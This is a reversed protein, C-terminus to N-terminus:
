RRDHHDDHDHRWNWYEEQERRNARQYEHYQKHSNSLYLRWAENEHEDWNHYDKHTRDYIRIQVKADEPRPTAMILMPGALAATLTLSVAYRHARHM